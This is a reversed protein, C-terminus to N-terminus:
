ISVKGAFYTDDVATFFRDFDIGCTIMVALSQYNGPEGGVPRFLMWFERSVKSFAATNQIEAVHNLNGAYSFIDRFPM